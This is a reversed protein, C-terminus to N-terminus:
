EDELVKSFRPWLGGLDCVLCVRAFGAGREVMQKRKKSSGSPDYTVVAMTENGCGCTTALDFDKGRAKPFRLEQGECRDPLIAGGQREVEAVLLNIEDHTFQPSRAGFDPQEDDSM